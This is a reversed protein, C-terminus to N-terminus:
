ANVPNVRRSDLVGDLLAAMALYVAGDLVHGDATGPAAAVGVAERLGHRAELTICGDSFVARDAERDVVLRYEAGSVRGWMVDRRGEREVHFGDRATQRRYGELSGFLRPKVLYPAGDEPCFTDCNGCDNCFDQFTAIQHRERIEFGAPEGEVVRGNEVCYIRVSASVPEVDYVFNADNPCAPLCKDCNICDFLALRRGIRRPPRQSSERYRPDAVAREVIQPTNLSAAAAVIADYRREQGARLLVDHLDVAASRLSAELAARLPSPPVVAAIAPEGQGCAKVVYDGVTRVGLGRMREVLNELYKPLRGYGGPKLLDTCTTVPALGIAVCDAFNRNDVGASFSLPLSPRARRLRGVLSLTV